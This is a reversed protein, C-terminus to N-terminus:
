IKFYSSVATSFNFYFISLKFFIILYKEKNKLFSPSKKQSSFSNKFILHLFLPNM